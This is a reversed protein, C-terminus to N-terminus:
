LLQDAVQEHSMGRSLYKKAQHHDAKFVALKLATFLDFGLDNFMDIRWSTEKDWGEDDEPTPETEPEADKPPERMGWYLPM